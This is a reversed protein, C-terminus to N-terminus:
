PIQELANLTRRYSEGKGQQQYLIAAQQLDQRARQSDGLQYHVVGRNFYAPAYNPDNEIALAYDSLSGRRDGADFRANGRKFYAPAYNPNIQIARDFDAIASQYDQRIEGHVLGRTYYAQWYDPDLETARFLDFLAVEGRGLRYLAVGRNYYAEAFDEDLAIAESWVSVAGELDQQRYLQIGYEFARRAAGHEELYTSRRALARDLNWPCVWLALGLLIGLRNRKM